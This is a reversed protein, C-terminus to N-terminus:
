INKVKPDFFNKAAFLLANIVILTVGGFVEPNKTVFEGVQAVVLAGVGFLLSIVFRGTTTKFFNNM